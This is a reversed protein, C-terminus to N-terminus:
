SSLAMEPWLEEILARIPDCVCRHARFQKFLENKM